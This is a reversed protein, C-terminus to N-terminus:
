PRAFAAMDQSLDMSQLNLSDMPEPRNHLNDSLEQFEKAAACSAGRSVKFGTAGHQVRSEFKEPRRFKPSRGDGRLHPPHLRRRTAQKLWSPSSPGLLGMNLGM